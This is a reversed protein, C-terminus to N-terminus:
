FTEDIGRIELDKKAQACLIALSVSNYGSDFWKILNSYLRWFFYPAHTGHFVQPVPEGAEVRALAARVSLAQPDSESRVLYAAGPM